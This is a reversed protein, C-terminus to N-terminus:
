RGKAKIDGNVLGLQILGEGDGLSGSLSHKTAVQDKLELNSTTIQGNTLTAKFQASADRQVALEIEGNVTFLDIMGSHPLTLDAQIKGNVLEVQSDGRLDELTVDGNTNEVYVQVGKPLTVRYDVEYDRGDSEPQETEILVEDAGERIRVHLLALHTQADQMGDSGVRREGEIRLAGHHDAGEVHVCGNIGKLRVATQGSLTLDFSFPESAQHAPPDVDVDIPGPGINPGTVDCDCAAFGMLSLLGLAKLTHRTAYM